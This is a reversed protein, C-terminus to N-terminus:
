NVREVGGNSEPHRPSGRVMLVDPWINKVESIISGVFDDNLCMRIGVSNNAAQAFEGGNDTQLISPPGQDTFITM